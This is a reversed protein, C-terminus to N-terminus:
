INVGHIVYKTHSRLPKLVSFPWIKPQPFLSAVSIRISWQKTEIKCSRVHRILSYLHGQAEADRYERSSMGGRDLLQKLMKIQEKYQEEQQAMQEKYQKEQQAVQEKQQVIQEKYQKEQQAMQRELLATQERSQMRQEALQERLLAIEGKQKKSAPVAPNKFGATEQSSPAEVDVEQSTGEEIIMSSTMSLTRPDEMKALADCIRKLHAPYFKHYIERVFDHTRKRGQNEEFNLVFSAIPYRYFTTNEGDIVAFHGYLKVRENDHSISFVLIQRSLDSVEDGDLARYLQIIANAAMSSSHMNQRNARNIGQDGCKADCLLFPFYINDTFLTAREFATHNKLKALEEEGFASQAIGIVLDPKPKPGGLTKCRNWEASIDETIHELEQHGCVWLLEPSPMLLPTIDRYVRAENRNQARQWVSMFEPLPFATYQPEAYSSQLFQTCLTRSEEGVLSRGKLEEMHVGHEALVKEYAPSHAKPVEGDRFSQTYSPTHPRKKSSDSQEQSM